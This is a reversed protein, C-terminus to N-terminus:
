RQQWNVGGSGTDWRVDPLRPDGVGCGLTEGPRAEVHQDLFVLCAQGMHRALVSYAKHTPVTACYPGPSDAMFVTRGPIPIETIRHPLPRIWPSLYMNMAYPFFYDTNTDKADPCILVHDAGERPIRGEAVLTAYPASGVYPLLCNFWDSPRDIQRTPRDGQGRRPICEDNDDMYLELAHGFQRLKGQCAIRRAAARASQLAPFLLAGLAAIVGIVVLLEILTFGRASRVRM